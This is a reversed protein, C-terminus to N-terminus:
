EASSDSPSGGAEGADEVSVDRCGASSALAPIGKVVVRLGYEACSPNNMTIGTLSADSFQALDASGIVWGRQPHNFDAAIEFSVDPTCAFPQPYTIVYTGQGPFRLWPGDPTSSEWVLKSDEMHVDGPVAGDGVVPCSPRPSGGLALCSPDCQHTTCGPAVIGTSIAVFLPTAASVELRSSRRASRKPPKSRM